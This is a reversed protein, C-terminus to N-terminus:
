GGAVWKGGRHVFILSRVKTRIETGDKVFVQGDRIGMEGNRVEIEPMGFFAVPESWAGDAEFIVGTDSHNQFCCAKVFGFVVVSGLNKSAALGANILLDASLTKTWSTLPHGKVSCDLLSEPNFLITEPAFPKIRGAVRPGGSASPPGCLAAVMLAAILKEIEQEPTLDKRKDIVARIAALKDSTAVAPPSPRAARAPAAPPSPRTSPPAPEVSVPASVVKPVEIVGSYRGALVGKLGQRYEDRLDDLKLEGLRGGAGRTPHMSVETAVTAFAEGKDLRSLAEQAATASGVVIISLTLVGGASKEHLLLIAYDRSAGTTTQADGPRVTGLVILLLVTCASLRPRM